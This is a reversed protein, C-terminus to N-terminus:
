VFVGFMSVGSALTLVCIDPGSTSAEVLFMLPGFALSSTGDASKFKEEEFFFRPFQKDHM